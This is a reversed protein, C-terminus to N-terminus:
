ERGRERVCVRVSERCKCMITHTCHARVPFVARRRTTVLVVDVAHVEGVFRLALRRRGKGGESGEAEGVGATGVARGAAGVASAAMSMPNSSLGEGALGSGGGGAADAACERAFAEARLIGAELAEVVCRQVRALTDLNPQISLPGISPDTCLCPHMDKRLFMASLRHKDCIFTGFYVFVCVCFCAHVCVCVCQCVPVGARVCVCVCM